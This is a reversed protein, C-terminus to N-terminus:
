KFSFDFNSLRSQGHESGLISDKYFDPDNRANHADFKRMVLKPKDGAIYSVPSRMSEHRAHEVTNLYDKMTKKHNSQATVSLPQNTNNMQSMVTRSRPNIPTAVPSSLASSFPNM